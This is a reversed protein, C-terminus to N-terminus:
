LRCNNTQKAVRGAGRWCWTEVFWYTMTDGWPSAVRDAGKLVKAEADSWTQGIM